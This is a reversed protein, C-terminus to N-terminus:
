AIFKIENGNIAFKILKIKLTTLISLFQSDYTDNPLVLFRAIKDDGSSHFMLQGIGTYISQSDSRTKVEYISLTRKGDSVALDILSNNFTRQNQKLRKRLSNELANVIMGHNSDYEFISKRKGKKKGYFEPNFSLSKEVNKITRKDHKNAISEKFKAVENVFETLKLLLNKSTISSIIIAEENNGKDDFVQVWKGRYWNKFREKGIGKRGGGIKGRHLIFYDNTIEDKAFIGAVQRTSGEIPPNIEVVIIQNGDKRKGLGFANWYRPIDADRLILTSYWLNDNYFVENTIKGGQFGIDLKKKYPLLKKLRAEFEKQCKQIKNRTTILRLM